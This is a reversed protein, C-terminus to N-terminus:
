TNESRLLYARSRGTFEELRRIESLEFPRDGSISRRVTRESCYLLTAIEKENKFEKALNPYRMQKTLKM